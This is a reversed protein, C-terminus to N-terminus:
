AAPATPAAASTSTAAAAAHRPQPKRRLGAGHQRAPAAAAVPELSSWCRSARCSRGQLRDAAKLNLVLRTRDGAQVVNVSRLNGQNIDVTSRGIANTAGPFDLAIRAPSQIAFGTPCRPCRSRSISASWKRAARCRVAHGGRRREAGARRAVVGLALLARRAARVGDALTTEAEENRGRKCNCHRRASSGNAPPTRCSKACCSKPKVSRPSRGTTRAWTTARRAGPLAPQRGQGAGGAPGQKILSGVMAMTDLPFRKSRSRAARWNRRWCRRTPTGAAALRAQPGADAEPQQLSRDRAEQTYAQPTFKKPESIPQCTAAQDARAAREDVAAAESRAPRLRLRRAAAALSRGDVANMRTM